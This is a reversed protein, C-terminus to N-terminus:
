ISLLSILTESRNSGTFNRSRTISNLLVSSFVTLVSNSTFVSSLVSLMLSYLESLFVAVMLFLAQFM